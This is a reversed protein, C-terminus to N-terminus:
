GQPTAGNRKGPGPVVLVDGPVADIIKRATSGIFTDYVVGGGHTGVVTLHRSSNQSYGRLLGDPMGHEVLRTVRKAEDPALGAEALFKDAAEASLFDLEQEVQARGLYRAFPVDYAHFLTPAAQPFFRVATQFALQASESFDTAVIMSQYAAYPRARVILFPLPSHRILRQVTDGLLMRGLTEDRAVGLVILEPQMLAAAELIVSAPRGTEVHVSIGIGPDEMLLDQTLRRRVVTAPDARPRYTWLDSYASQEDLGVSEQLAHVVALESQWDRAILVARDLARDCRHSLDTALMIRAASAM